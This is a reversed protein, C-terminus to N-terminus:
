FQAGMPPAAEDELVPVKIGILPDYGITLFLLTLLVFDSGQV